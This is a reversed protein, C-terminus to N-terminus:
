NHMCEMVRAENGRCCGRAAPESKPCRNQFYLGHNVSDLQWLVYKTAIAAM